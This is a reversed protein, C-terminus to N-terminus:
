HEVHRQHQKLEPQLGTWPQHGPMSCRRAGATFIRFVNCKAQSNETRQREVM